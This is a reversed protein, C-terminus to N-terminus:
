HFSKTAFRGDRSPKSIRTYGSVVHNWRIVWNKHRRSLLKEVYDEPFASVMYSLRVSFEKTFASNAM